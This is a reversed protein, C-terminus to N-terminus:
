TKRRKHGRSHLEHIPTNDMKWAALAVANERKRIKKQEKKDISRLAKMDRKYEKMEAKTRRPYLQEPGGKSHASRKGVPVLPKNVWMAATMEARKADAVRAFDKDAKFFACDCDESDLWAVVEASHPDRYVVDGAYRSTPAPPELQWRVCEANFILQMAHAIVEHSFLSYWMFRHQDLAGFIREIRNRVRRFEMDFWEEQPGPLGGKLQTLMHRLSIYALDALVFEKWKHPFPRTMCVADSDHVSGEVPGTLALPCGDLMMYWQFSLYKDGQKGNYLEHPGRCYVPVGDVISFCDPFDPDTVSFRRNVDALSGRKTSAELCVKVYDKRLTSEDLVKGNTTSKVIFALQEYSVNMHLLSLTVYTKRPDIAIQKSLEQVVHHSYGTLAKCSEEWDRM